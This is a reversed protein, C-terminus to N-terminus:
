QYQLLLISQNGVNRFENLHNLNRRKEKILEKQHILKQMAKLIELLVLLLLKRFSGLYALYLM